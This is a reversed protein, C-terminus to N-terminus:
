RRWSATSRRRPGAIQSTPWMLAITEATDGVYDRSLAYLVPDIRGELLEGLARRLPLRAFLGDTLAALAWGRDPDPASRFYEVLLLLKGNRSPTTSLSDLLISFRQV